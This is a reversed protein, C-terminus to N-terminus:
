APALSSPPQVDGRTLQAALGAERFFAVCAVILLIVGLLGFIAMGCVGCGAAGMGLMLGGLVPPVPPAAPMTAPMTTTTGGSNITITTGSATVTSSWGATMTAPATTATPVTTPIATIVSRFFPGMSLGLAGYGLVVPISSVLLGWFTAHALKLAGGGPVRRLLAILHRLLAFPVILFLVMSAVAFLMMWEIFQVFGPTLIQAPNTAPTPGTPFNLYLPMALGMGLGIVLPLPLLWLGIRTIKRATFGEPHRDRPDRRTLWVVGVIGTILPGLTLVFQIASLQMMVFPDPNAGVSGIGVLVFSAVMNLIPVVFFQVGLAILLLLTGWALTRVWDPSAFRLLNRELSRQVPTACEPCVGAAPQTRLNYGCAVCSFDQTLRGDTGIIVDYAHQPTTPPTAM